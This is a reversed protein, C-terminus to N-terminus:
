KVQKPMIEQYSAVAVMKNRVPLMAQNSQKLHLVNLFFTFWDAIREKEILEFMTEKRTNTLACGHAAVRKQPHTCSLVLQRSLQNFTQFVGSLAPAGVLTSQGM